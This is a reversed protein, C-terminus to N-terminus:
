KGQQAATKIKVKAGPVLSVQGDTVVSDGPELGQEVVSEGDVTLSSVVPRNEVTLDQKILFVFQGKQGTQVAQSPVVIAETITSLTMAVNIFQGPWLLKGDNPFTAKLKITGSSVDVANDVFSLVGREPSEADELLAEVKVGGAAMSKKIQPLVGAPVAFSVYVPQIQNIVVMPTDANAKILNGENSYLSGTKGTLPSRITCNKYELRANQVIAQDAALAAELVSVNTRIADYQAQTAFKNKILEEYRKLDARANELQAKDKALNAQAQNLVAKYPRSDITFLLDGKAVEQGENFHVRTLIGGVQSKISVVSYAEVAGIAKLQVPVTKKTAQAAAVPVALPRPRSESERSCAPAGLISVALISFATLGAPTSSFCRRERASMALVASLRKSMKRFDHM